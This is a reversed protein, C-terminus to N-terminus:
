SSATQHRGLAEVYEYKDVLNKNADRGARLLALYLPGSFRLPRWDDTMLDDSQLRPGRKQGRGEPETTRESLYQCEQPSSSRAPAAVGALLHSGERHLFIFTHRRPVLPAFYSTTRLAGKARRTAALLHTM